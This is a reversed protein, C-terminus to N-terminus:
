EIIKNDKDILGMDRRIMDVTKIAYNMCANYKHEDDAHARAVILSLTVAHQAERQDPTLRPTVKRVSGM